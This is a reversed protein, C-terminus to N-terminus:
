TRTRISGFFRPNMVQSQWECLHLMLHVKPTMKWAKQGSELALSSLSAVLGCMQRGLKPLRHKAEDGLFMAESDMLSYFSCLQQCLAVRRKDLYKSALVLCFPIVHRTAAAKAKLKPWSNGTRIRDKTLPGQIRSEVRNAKYWTDLEKNLAAINQEYTGDVLKHQRCVEDFINGAVHASFGLDATHLVDICLCELRLGVVKDFLVPVAAGESELRAIYSEHTHRTARWEAEPSMKSFALRGSSSADCM